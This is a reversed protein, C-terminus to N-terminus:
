QAGVRESNCVSAIEEIARQLAEWSPQDPVPVVDVRPVDCVRTLATAWADPTNPQVVDVVTALGALAGVASVLLPVGSVAALTAVSSVMGSRYPLAVVDAAAFYDAVAADPIYSDIIHIRDAIASDVCLTRLANTDHWWEGVIFLHVTPPTHRMASVIIDFGKYRRVFGFCLVVRDIPSIGYQRRIDMHKHSQRILEGNLPLPLSRHRSHQAEETGFQIVGHACHLMLRAIGAQWDPADPEVLQHSLALTPINRWASQAILLLLFPVWYPTWWQWIVLDYERRKIGHWCRVWALPNWGHIRKDITCTIKAAQDDPMANGPFLLPPYLPAIAWCTVMHNLRLTNVLMTSFQAIGGRTPAVPAVVLIRLTPQARESTTM